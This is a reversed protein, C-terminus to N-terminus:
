KKKVEELRAKSVYVGKYFVDYEIDLIRHKTPEFMIANLMDSADTLNQANLTALVKFTNIDILQFTKM